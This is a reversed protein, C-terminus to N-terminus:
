LRKASCHSINQGHPLYFLWKLTLKKLSSQSTLCIHPMHYKGINRNLSPYNVRIYIAEKITRILNQDERWVISFNDISTNHGIINFHDCMPFPAKLHKKFREGFTRPSEAIYEDNCEVRDNIDISSVVRRQSPNKIESLWWSAKWPIAKKFTCNYGMNRCVFKLSENLGKSYIVVM